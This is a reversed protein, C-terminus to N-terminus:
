APKRSSGSTQTALSGAIVTVRTGIGVADFLETVHQNHMRICGKSVNQGILWPADTGHIRYYSHGLYLARAGMPNLPHKGPVFSPLRPNERRMKETPIWSPWERKMTVIQTGQWLDQDRPTAIPYAIAQGRKRVHYLRRDELSVVIDGVALAASVSVHVPGDPGATQARAQVSVIALALLCLLLGIILIANSSRSSTRMESLGWFLFPDRLPLQQEVAARRPKM